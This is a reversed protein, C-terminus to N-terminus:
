YIVKGILKNVDLGKEEGRFGAASAASRYMFDWFDPCEQTLGADFANEMDSQLDVLKVYVPSVRVLEEVLMMYDQVTKM